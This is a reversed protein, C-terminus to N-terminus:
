GPLIQKARPDGLGLHVHVPLVLDQATAWFPDYAKSNLPEGRPFTPLLVGRLGLKAIRQTERIGEEVDDTPVLGIGILRNPNVHCFDALFDNYARLCAFQLELDDIAFVWFGSNPYLVQAQLGDTDMDKLREHPDYSGPRISEYTEGALKYDEYKKGAQVQLGMRTVVKGDVTWADGGELREVKPARDRLKAPVRSQWTDRPEEVHDDASIIKYDGM